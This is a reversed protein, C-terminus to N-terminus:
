SPPVIMRSLRGSLPFICAQLSHYIDPKGLFISSTPAGEEDIAPFWGGQDHDIFTANAFHWLRRYWTEDETRRDLAILTAIAGIAETVPWWFRSGDAVTGDFNLTYAFGGEPLWADHLAQEILRRAVQPADTEPRGMLDWHQLTLRGLEFSHGPTTGAPRFMHNGAYNRDIQWDQTYHEPLRWNEKPAIQRTFFDLIRAARDLFVTEGTAEVATLMAEVAHMNANMGRYTSFPTWDRNWEDCLLGADEEWYHRDLIGTIDALLADADPHGAMKASSAALLVFVHGYALKRDDSIEDDTLAWVYGGHVTDKHHSALYAMGHDVIDKAGQHGQLVGLSYSHVLRTTTHLEQEKTPLPTGDHGLLCFGPGPQMSAAFFTLQSESQRKLWARHDAQDLWFWDSDMPGPPAIQQAQDTM